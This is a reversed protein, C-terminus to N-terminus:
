PASDRPAPHLRHARCRRARTRVRGGAWRRKRGLLFRRVYRSRNLQGARTLTEREAMQGEKFDSIEFTFGDHTARGRHAQFASSDSEFCDANGQRSTCAFPTFDVCAGKLRSRSILRMQHAIRM